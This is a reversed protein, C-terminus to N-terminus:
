RTSGGAVPVRAAVAVEFLGHATAVAAGIAVALGPLWVAAHGWRGARSDSGTM